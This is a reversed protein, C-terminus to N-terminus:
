AVTVDREGNIQEVVKTRERGAFHEAAHAEIVVARHKCQLGTIPTQVQFGFIRNGQEVGLGDLEM